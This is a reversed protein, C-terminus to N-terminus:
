DVRKLDAERMDTWLEYADAIAFRRGSRVNACYVTEAECAIQRLVPEHGTPFAVVIQRAGAKRVAHITTEVAFGSAAGDDIIIVPSFSLKPFPRERTLRKHRGAVRARTREVEERIEDQTLDLGSILERNLSVTGDFAVAGYNVETIWPLTMTSVIAIESPLSLRDAVTAAVPLGGGPLGMVVASSDRYAELMASLVEGAHTRDRFIKIRDRLAVNEVIMLPRMEILSRSFNLRLAYALHSKM